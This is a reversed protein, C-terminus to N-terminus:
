ERCEPCLERELCSSEAGCGVCKDPEEVVESKYDKWNAAIREAQKKALGDMHVVRNATGYPQPNSSMSCCKDCNGHPCCNRVVKYLM